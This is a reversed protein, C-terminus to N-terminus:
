KWLLYYIREAMQAEVPERTYPLMSAMKDYLDVSYRHVVDRTLIFNGGPPFPLYGPATIGFERAFDNFNEFYKCEFQSAFWSNNREHYMGNQYYNVQGQTDAYIHHNLTLLPTFLKNDKVKNFEEESIYKFLNTKGWIFVEPLNDYNEVLYRLKDYDVNGVNLTPVIRERPFDRLYIDNDSRDYILYDLGSDLLWTPTFNYNVLVAKM